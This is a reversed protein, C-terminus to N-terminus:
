TRLAYCSIRGSVEAVALWKGDPSWRALAPEGELRRVDLPRTSNAAPKWLALKWDRGASILHPGGPQWVLADIREHHADLQMPESGEPGKGGFDWVIISSAGTSATALLRSNASWTTQDVKGEYGAIRSRRNLNLYRFHVESDSLGSVIIKLDPSLSLTQPTGELAFQQVQGGGDIRDLFLVGNGAAVIEDRGRWVLHSLNVTHADLTTMPEGSEDLVHLVRATAFALRQGDTRWSLGAPWGRGRHVIRPESGAGASADWCRVSGDQGSTAITTRKPQWAVALLGPEHRGLPVAEGGERAIRYLGGEGGAVAFADGASSWSLDVPFDDIATVSLPALM